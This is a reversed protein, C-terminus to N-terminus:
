VASADTSGFFDSLNRVSFINRHAEKSVPAAKVLKDLLLQNAVRKTKQFATEPYAALRHAAGITSNLVASAEVVENVLGYSQARAAPIQSGGYVIERMLNFTGLERLITVGVPSGVGHNLGPLRFSASEAMLRWDFMMALQFSMGTAIGDIAAVSPKNLRLVTAYLDTIGDVWLDVQAASSLRLTEPCLEAPEQQQASGICLAIARVQEDADARRLAAKLAAEFAPTFSNHQSESAIQIVRVGARDFEIPAPMPKPLPEPM